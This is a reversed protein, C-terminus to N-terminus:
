ASNQEKGRAVPITVVGVRFYCRIVGSHTMCSKPTVLSVRLSVTTFSNDQPLNKGAFAAIKGTQNRVIDNIFLVFSLPDLISGQPVGSLVPVIDSNCNDLVVRQNRNNLCNKFFKLMRGDIHYQSKLKKLLLDHNVTDFAKAFDFYIIDSPLKKMFANALTEILNTMNTVCSKNRLFGHQRDDILNITRSYLEDYMIREMIKGSICALSMSRYNEINQKEGKKFIPVVNALKWEAPIIGKNYVLKFIISLPKALASACKKLVLGHINDPGQAKNSDLNTLINYVKGVNFDIEFSEDINFDIDIDYNSASSFQNYFFNNFM